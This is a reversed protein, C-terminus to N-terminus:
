RKHREVVEKMKQIIKLRLRVQKIFSKAKPFQQLDRSKANQLFREFLAESKKQQKRFAPAKFYIVGLQFLAEPDNPSRVLLSTYLARAKKYQRTGMLAAAYQRTAQEHNPHKKLVAKWHILAEKFAGREMSMSGLNMRAQLHNPNKKIAQQFLLRAKPANGKKLYVMGVNNLTDPDNFKLANLAVHGVLLAKNYRKSDVYLLILESYADKNRADMALTQRALKEALKFQRTKRYLMLLTRRVGPLKSRTAYLSRYFPLADQYRGVKVQLRAIRARVASEQPMHKLYNEYSQIADKPQGTSELYKGIQKWAQAVTEYHELADNCAKRAKEFSPAKAIRHTNQASQKKWKLWETCRSLRAAPLRRQHAFFATDDIVPGTRCGWLSPAVMLLSLCLIISRIANRRTNTPVPPQKSRRYTSDFCRM